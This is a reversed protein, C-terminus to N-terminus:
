TVRSFCSSGKGKQKVRYLAKDAEEYLRDYDIDPRETRCAGISCSAEVRQGHWCIASVSEILKRSSQELSEPSTSCLVVAFEDGGIRGIGAANVFVERLELATEKIVYDGCLHGYRDNVRKFDDLDVILLTVPNQPSAQAIYQEACSQLAPKNLLATMPDKEVLAQLRRNMLGIERRQAIGEAAHHCCTLAVALAVISTITLNLRDGSNLVPAALAMFLTYAAGYLVFNCLHSTQIFVAMGLIATIYVTTGGGPDKMLDYANLCVHWLLMFLVTGMQVARQARVSANRFLHRLLLYLAASLLLACYMGFYIRNNLTGLGSQSWLLVRAINYSEMGFIMICIVLLSVRNKRLSEQWFDPRIEPPIVFFQRIRKGMLRM